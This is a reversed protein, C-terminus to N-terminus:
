YDNLRKMCLGYTPRPEYDVKSYIYIYIGAWEMFDYPFQLHIQM